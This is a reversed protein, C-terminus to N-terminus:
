SATALVTVDISHVTTDTITDPMDIKLDLTVSNGSIPLTAVVASNSNDAPFATWVASGAGATDVDYSHIFQDLGITAELNWDVTTGTADTSRIQVDTSVNSASTIIQTESATGDITDNSGGAAVIGFDVGGDAITVSVIQPTVTAVVDAAGAATGVALGVLGVIAISAILSQINKM